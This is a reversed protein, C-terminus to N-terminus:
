ARLKSARHRLELKHPRDEAAHLAAEVGLSGDPGIAGTREPREAVPHGQGSYAISHTPDAISHTTGAISHTPGRCPPAQSPLKQPHARPTEGESPIAQPLGEGM